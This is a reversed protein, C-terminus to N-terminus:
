KYKCGVCYSAITGLEYIMNKSGCFSYCKTDVFTKIMSHM